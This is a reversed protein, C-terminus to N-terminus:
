IKKIKVGFVGVRLSKITYFHPFDSRDFIERKPVKLFEDEVSCTFLSISDRSMAETDGTEWVEDVSWPVYQIPALSGLWPKGESNHDSIRGVPLYYLGSDHGRRWRATLLM